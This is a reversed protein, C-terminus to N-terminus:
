PMNIFYEARQNEHTKKLRLIEGVLLEWQIPKSVYADAGAQLANEKEGRMANATLLVIPTRDGNQRLRRTTELGDLKPMKYDMLVLDFKKTNLHEIASYGDYEGFVRAGFGELVASLLMQNDSSDDVVLINLNKLVEPGLKVVDGSIDQKKSSFDLKVPCEFVFTSGIGKQSEQLYLNGGLLSAIKKSLSLGLGTGEPYENHEHAVQSFPKFLLERDASGIGTGNDQVSVKIVTNQEVERDAHSSVEVKVWGGKSFKIANGVINNLVQKFRYPDTFGPIELDNCFILSLEVNNKKALPSLFEITDRILEFPQVSIMDIALQGAELKSLDLIENILIVLDHANKLITELYKIGLENNKLQPRLLEAFGILATMPTRIEHSMNALFSSKIHDSEIAKKESLELARKARELEELKDSLAHRKFALRKFVNVKSNLIAINLPKVLIDIAGLEYGKFEFDINRNQTTLFIIPINKTKEVGRMLKALEFGDMTPMQVDLLALDFEHNESLIKLAGEGSHAKFFTIDQGDLAEALASINEPVDDVILLKFEM